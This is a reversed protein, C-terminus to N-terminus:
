RWGTGQIIAGNYKAGNVDFIVGSDKIAVFFYPSSGLGKGTTDEDQRVIAINQSGTVESNVWGMVCFDGTGFDLDPNYPQELYNTSSFGSYGVLDAGPAVKTRTITGNVILGPMLHAEM